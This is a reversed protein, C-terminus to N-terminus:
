EGHPRVVFLPQGHEVLAADDVLVQVIVGDVGAEVATYLKMVELLCLQSSATVDSGVEVYPDAGPKPSRYFTGLSPARVVVGEALEDGHDGAGTDDGGAAPTTAAAATPAPAPAAAPSAATATAGPTSVARESRPSKNVHLRFDGADIQLEDWDSEDFRALVVQVDDMTPKM